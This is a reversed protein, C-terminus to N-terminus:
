RVIQAAGSAIARDLLARMDARAKREAEDMKRGLANMQRGLAEMDDNLDRMPADFARMKDNLADMERDLKRMDDDLSRMQRDIEARETDTPRGAHRAGLAAQRAGIEAQRQGISAQEAGVGAQRQGIESQRAGIKSQQLGIKSQEDGIMSVPDWIRSIEKLVGADRVVYEKGATAFWLLDEGGTRLRRARRVDDSSASTTTQDDHLYVFRIERDRVPPQTQQPATPSRGLWRLLEARLDFARLHPGTRAPQAGVTPARDPVMAADRAALRFPILATSALLLVAAAAARAVVPPRSPRQLMVIRRKLNSFSWAAGAPALAAPHSTVGLDLLLRGYAQPASQLAALVAADCAVERWFAYERAAIRALPHFFFVREALAPVVGLWLDGRQVHALEHCIAMRQQEPPMRTFRSPVLIIPRRIGTILPSACADSVRMQPIREIRLVGAIENVTRQTEADAPLARALLRRRRLWRDAAISFSACVGAAWTIVLLLTWDPGPGPLSARAAATTTQSVALLPSQTEPSTVTPEAPLVKVQLPTLSLAVVFKAAVIWWLTARTAPSLHPVFRVVTWVVGAFLAGDVAARQLLDLM